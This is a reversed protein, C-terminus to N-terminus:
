VCMTMDGEAGLGDGKWDEIWTRGMLGGRRKKPSIDNRKSSVVRDLGVWVRVLTERGINAFGETWALEHAAM